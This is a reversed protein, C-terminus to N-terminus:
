TRSKAALADLLRFSTEYRREKYQKRHAIWSKRLHKWKILHEELLEEKGMTGTNIKFETAPQVTQQDYPEMDGASEPLPMERIENVLGKLFKEVIEPNYERKFVMVKSSDAATEQGRVTPNNKYWARCMAYLSSTEKFRSLDIHRDFFKMIYPQPVAPAKQERRRKTTERASDASDDMEETSEDTSHHATKLAGKLRGRAMDVNELSEKKRKDSSNLLTRRRPLM